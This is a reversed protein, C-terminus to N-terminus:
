HAKANIVFDLGKSQSRLMTQFDRRETAEAGQNDVGDFGVGYLLYGRGEPDAAPDVLRFRIPKGSWPDIPLRDLLSPVLDSLSAPYRGNAVKYRELAIMAALGGFDLRSKDTADIFKDLLPIFNDVAALGTAQESYWGREPVTQDAAKAGDAFFANIADRCEVYSGLRGGRALMSGRDMGVLGKLHLTRVHAADSFLLCIASLTGMRETEFTFRLPVRRSEQERILAAFEALVDPPVSESRLAIRVLRLTLADIAIAVLRSIITPQHEAMRAVTLNARLASLFENWDGAKAALAMRGGNFRALKRTDGLWPMMAAVMPTGASGSWDQVARPALYMEDLLRPGEGQRFEAIARRAMEQEFPVRKGWDTDPIENPETMLASFEPYIPQNADDKLANPANYVKDGAQTVLALANRFLVWGDTGGEPLPPQGEEALAAVMGITPCEARALAAQRELSATWLFWGGTGGGVLVVLTVITGWILRKKRKPTLWRAIRGPQERPQFLRQGRDDTILEGLSVDVETQMGCEPCTVKLDDPVPLGLMSYGCGACSGRTRIIHRLRRRLLWDRHLYAVFPPIALPLILGLICLVVITTGSRQFYRSNDLTIYLYAVAAIAAVLLILFTLAIAIMHVGRRAWSRKAAAVFRACQEDSFRDLEPFARWIKSRILLRM